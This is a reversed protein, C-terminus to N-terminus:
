SRVEGADAIKKKSDSGIAKKISKRDKEQEYRGYCINLKKLLAIQHVPLQDNKLRWMWNGESTGPRNMIASEDLGLIDQMPVVALQAVSSLVMRHMIEHINKKNVGRGVYEQIRNKEAKDAAQFWGVTTNNDHTGTFAVSNIVHNHLIYPNEGMQEGFAFQLVKMIPFDFDKILKYVPEDIEGLDEAIFPMDPFNKEVIKFFAKGPSNAWKGNIATEEGYPVEWYNAFARFHDLRVIDFLKLNQGLRKIWWDFGNKQLSKWDYVPTGWLQGTESFYDPPVGSVKSPNRKGDLKFYASNAWCDASDHNIYFPIDGIFGIAQDHTYAVLKEWQAYFLFQVFEEKEIEVKLLKKKAALAKPERDRLEEPWETWNDGLHRKFTLYLAYDELWTSNEERFKNFAKRVKKDSKKFSTYAIEFLGYKFSSVKEYDVENEEFDLNHSNLDHQSLYGDKVLLSPSILLPNGAFASYSSYPSHNFAADTPNLPLLQWYRHGSQHLFDVFKYAADGMDGIGYESPLSTIHLLVASSRKINKM